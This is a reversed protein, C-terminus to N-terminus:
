AKFSLARKRNPEPESSSIIVEEDREIDDVKRKFFSDFEEVRRRLKESAFFFFVFIDFHYIYYLEYNCNPDLLLWNLISRVTNIFYM